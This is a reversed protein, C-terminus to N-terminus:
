RLHFLYPSVIPSNCELSSSISDPITDPIHVVVLENTPGATWNITEDGQRNSDSHDVMKPGEANVIVGSHNYYAGKKVEASDLQRYFIVDGDEAVGPFIFPPDEESNPLRKDPIRLGMVGDPQPYRITGIVFTRTTFRETETLFDYLADTNVWALGYRRNYCGRGPCDGLDFYWDPYDDTLGGARLVQSVFNTCDANGFSGYDPNVGGAWHEAYDKAAKRDYRKKGSPDTLNIPNADVYLWANYSMPTTDDGQWSDKTLFRGSAPDYMRSRLYILKM